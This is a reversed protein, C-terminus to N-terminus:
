SLTDLASSFLLTAAGTRLHTSATSRLLIASVVTLSLAAACELLKMEDNLLMVISVNKIWQALLM